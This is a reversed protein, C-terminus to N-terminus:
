EESGVIVSQQRVVQGDRLAVLIAAEGDLDDAPVLLSVQGDEGVAKPSTILSSGPDTAKRRLDVTLGTGGTVEVKCRNNVWRISTFEVPVAAGERKVTLVPIVSEQLSLGGHAYTTGGEFSSVTPALTIAVAPNWSWPFTSYESTNGDKLVACREKRFATQSGPLEVKHLNGPILLWGHDTIVRVERFGSSLLEVITERLKDLEETVRSALKLGQAHGMSDFDGSELWAAGSPDPLASNTSSLFGRQALLDRLLSATLAKGGSELTLEVRDRPGVGAGVPAVAPKATPTISPITSFQWDLHVEEGQLEHALQAALDFRLGDVFIVALGPAATWSNSAPRPLNGQPEVMQRFSTNVRELWELYPARVVGGLVQRQLETRACALVELVAWDVQHGHSAYAGALEQLTAGSLTETTRQALETLPALASALPSERLTAWVFNRRPGHEAELAQIGARVAGSAQGELAKLASALQQEAFENVQPWVEAQELTWAQGPTPGATALRERVGPFQNPSQAYREWVDALPGSRGALQSAVSAPGSSLDVGYENELAATLGSSVPSTPESLWDLLERVLDPYSLQDLVTSTLPARQRLDSVKRDLLTELHGAVVPRASSAVEVGLGDGQRNLFSAVTWDSRDRREFVAGRYQLDVLPALQDPEREERLQDHSIGPLYVVPLSGDGLDVVTRIWVAPGTQTAPDNAGLTLVSRRQRLAQAAARWEGSGDPWLLCVPPAVDSSNYTGAKDLAQELADLVTLDTLTSM